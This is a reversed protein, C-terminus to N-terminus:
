HFIRPLRKKWAVPLIVDIADDVTVIGRLRGEGDVVPVALLNYKAIMRAVEEQPTYLGVECAHGAARLVLRAGPARGSDAREALLRRATAPREDVVYVHYIEDLAEAAQRLHALTEQATLTPPVHVFETTM